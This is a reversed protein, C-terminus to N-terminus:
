TQPLLAKVAALEKRVAALETLAKKSNALGSQLAVGVTDGGGAKGLDRTLLADVIEDVSPMDQDEMERLLADTRTFKWPSGDRERSQRSQFHTHETHDSDGSYGYRHWDNRDANAIQHNSIWLLARPDDEFDAKLAALIRQEDPTGAPVSSGLYNVDGDYADVTGDADEQHQSTESHNKDARAGDSQSGRNPFRVVIGDRWATLAPNLGGWSM